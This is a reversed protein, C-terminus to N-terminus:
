LSSSYQRRVILNTLREKRGPDRDCGGFRTLFRESRGVAIIELRQRM